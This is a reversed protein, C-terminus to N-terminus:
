DDLKLTQIIHNVVWDSNLYKSISHPDDKGNDIDFSEETLNQYGCSTLKKGAGVFDDKDAGNFWSNIANPKRFPPRISKKVAEIGLPSGLTIYSFNDAFTLDRLIKFTVITGLSHSVILAPENLIYPKVIADVKTAATPNKLYAYAQPLYKLLKEVKNPFLREALRMIAIVNRNHQVAQAVAGSQNNLEIEIEDSPLNFAEKFFDSYFKTEENIADINGQAVAQAANDDTNNTIESLVDGYYPAVIEMAMISDFQQPTLRKSLAGIWEWVIQRESGGENNIGHVLIIKNM